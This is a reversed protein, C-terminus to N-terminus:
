FVGYLYNKETVFERIYSRYSLVFVFKDERLPFTKPSLSLRYIVEICKRQVINNICIYM